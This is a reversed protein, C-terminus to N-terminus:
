PVADARRLRASRDRGVGDEVGGVGDHAALGVRHEVHRSGGHVRLRHAPREAPGRGHLLPVHPREGRGREAGVHRRNWWTTDVQFALTDVIWHQMDSSWAHGFTTEFAHANAAGAPLHPHFMQRLRPTIIMTDPLFLTDYHTVVNHIWTFEKTSVNGDTDHFVSYSPRLEAEVRYVPDTSDGRVFGAGFVLALFSLTAAAVALRAADPRESRM